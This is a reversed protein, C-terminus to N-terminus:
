ASDHKCRMTELPCPYLVSLAVLCLSGPWFWQCHRPPVPVLIDRKWPMCQTGDEGQFHLDACDADPHCQGNDQLCRNLPLQMVSCNLGDGIYNNKCDCKRKDQKSLSHLLGLWTNLQCLLPVELSTRFQQFFTM